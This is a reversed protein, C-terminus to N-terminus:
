RRSWIMGMHNSKLTRLFSSAVSETIYDLSPIFTSPSCAMLKPVLYPHLWTAGVGTLLAFKDGYVHSMQYSM